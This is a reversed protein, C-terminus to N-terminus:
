RKLIKRKVIRGNWYHMEMLYLGTPLSRTNLIQMTEVDQVPWKQELFKQGNLDFIKLHKLGPAWVKVEADFPMPYLLPSESQGSSIAPKGQENLIYVFPQDRRSSNNSFSAQYNGGLYLRGQRPSYRIVRIRTDRYHPMIKKLYVQKGASDFRFLFNLSADVSSDSQLEITGILSGDPLDTLSSVYSNDTRYPILENSSLRYSTSDIFLSGDVFFRRYFRFDIWDKGGNEQLLAITTDTLAEFSPEQGNIFRPISFFQPPITTISQLELSDFRYHFVRQGSFFRLTNKNLDLDFDGLLELTTPQVIPLRFKQVTDFRKLDHSSRILFLTDHDLQHYGKPAQWSGKNAACLFYFHGDRFRMKRVVPSIGQYRFAQYHEIQDTNYASCGFGGPMLYLDSYWGEQHRNVNFGLFYGAAYDSVNQFTQWTRNRYTAQNRFRGLEVVNYYHPAKGYNDGHGLYDFFGDSRPFIDIITQNPHGVYLDIPRQLYEQANISPAFGLLAMILVLRSM